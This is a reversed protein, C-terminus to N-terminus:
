EDKTEEMKELENFSPKDKAIDSMGVKELIAKIDPKEYEDLLGGRGLRTGAMIRYKPRTLLQREESKYDKISLHYIESFLAPIREKLRGTIM